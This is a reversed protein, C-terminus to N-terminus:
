NQLTDVLYGSNFREWLLNSLFFRTPVGSEFEPSKKPGKKEYKIWGQTHNM